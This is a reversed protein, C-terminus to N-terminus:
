KKFLGVLWIIAIAGVIASILIGFMGTMKIGVLNFAIGGIFAGAVGLILNLFLGFGKGKMIISALWGAVLGTILFILYNM